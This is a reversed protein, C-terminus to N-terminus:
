ARRREFRMLGSAPDDSVHVFGTNRLVGISPTLTPFTTAVVVRVEPDRFARAILAAVAETAYGRRQHEVAVAYGIQVAGEPSPPGGFGAVGVLVPSDEAVPSARLLYHLTWARSRPDSELQQRVREVDDPELVPPPWSPPVVAGLARGVAERGITEAQCLAVTAPILQLRETVM